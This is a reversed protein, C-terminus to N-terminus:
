INHFNKLWYQEKNSFDIMKIMDKGIGVFSIEMEDAANLDALADGFFIVDTNRVNHDELASKLNDVKSSPSGYIQSFYKSLNRREVIEKIEKRPTASVIICNKNASLLEDLFLTAGKIEAANIVKTLVLQSFLSSLSEMEEQSLDIDLFIKHYYKFKEYRSMGGNSKHHLVAKKAIEDGYQRYITYFAETKVEISDAIVGDFDFAFLSKSHIANLIFDDKIM